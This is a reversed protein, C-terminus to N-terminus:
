PLPTLTIKVNQWNQDISIQSVHTEFGSKQVTLTYTGSNLGKFFVQGEPICGSAFMITINEFTPTVTADSTELYVKYRLYRNNNHLTNIVTGTPTEYYSNATGDPGVFNWTLNDDNTAIQLKM